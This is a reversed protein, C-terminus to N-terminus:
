IIKRLIYSCFSTYKTTNYFSIEHKLRTPLELTLASIQFEPAHWHDLTVDRDNTTVIFYRFSFPLPFRIVYFLKQYMGRSESFFAFQIQLIPFYFKACNGCNEISSGVIRLQFNEKFSFFSTPYRETEFTM